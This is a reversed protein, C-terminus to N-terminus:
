YNDTKGLYVVEPTYISVYKNNDISNISVVLHGCFKLKMSNKIYFSM